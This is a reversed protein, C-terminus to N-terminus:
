YVTHASVFNGISRKVHLHSPCMLNVPTQVLPLPFCIRFVPPLPPQRTLASSLLLHCQSQPVPSSTEHVSFLEETSSVLSGSGPAHLSTHLTTSSAELQFVAPLDKYPFVAGSDVTSISGSRCIWQVRKGELRVRRRHGGRTIGQRGVDEVYCQTPLFQGRRVTRGNDGNRMCISWQRHSHTRDAKAM